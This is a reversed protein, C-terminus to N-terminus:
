EDDTARKPNLKATPERASERRPSYAVFPSMYLGRARRSEGLRHPSTHIRRPSNPIFLLQVKGIPKNLL